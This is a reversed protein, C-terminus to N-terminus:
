PKQYVARSGTLKYFQGSLLTADADAAADNAYIPCNAKLKETFLGSGSVQLKDVGNDTTTNILINGSSNIRMKESDLAGLSLYDNGGIFLSNDTNNRRIAGLFTDDHKRFVMFVGNNASSNSDKINVAQNRPLSSDYIISFRDSGVGTQTGIVKIVVDKADGSDIM